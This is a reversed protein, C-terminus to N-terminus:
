ERSGGWGFPMAVHGTATRDVPGFDPIEVDVAFIEARRDKPKVYGAPYGTQVYVRDAGEEVIVYIRLNM